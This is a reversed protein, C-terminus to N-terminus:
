LKLASNYLSAYAGGAAMLAEHSGQEEIGNDTLVLIRQANRITSLRHAIVLTTRQAALEELSARIAEESENDLASTAEDFILIPPDKLFVRAISLRQKQGGSLKVGRQGIDTQYGQPLAMIFDHANAAKAAAEIEAHDADLKGYRINDAVTGGFLYVDQQVLGINQRLTRLSINRVDSGDLLIEGASVEYFRPILSCLTTKGAGSPGVLAAYEGAQLQLNINRLVHDYGQRYRFSVNRFQIQGRISAPESAGAADQIEPEVELMEMVRQFGTTGEQYLFTFNALRLLPDVLIAVYLLYTVLDGANLAGRTIAAGGLVVVAVTILQTFAKMGADLYAESRYGEKRSTLFRNNAASFKRSEVAENTFSAVVRIGGLTDEAQANIDGVRERSTRLARNMTRSFHLAYVAILPLLLFVGFTLPVNIQLLIV